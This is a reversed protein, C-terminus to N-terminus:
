SGWALLCRCLCCAPEAPDLQSKEQLSSISAAPVLPCRGWNVLIGLGGPGRGKGVKTRGRFAGYSIECEIGKFHRMLKVCNEGWGLILGMGRCAVLGQNAQAPQPPPSWGKVWRLPSWGLSLTQEADKSPRPTASKHARTKSEESPSPTENASGKTLSGLRFTQTDELREMLMVYPPSVQKLPAFPSVLWHDLNPLPSPFDRPIFGQHRFSIGPQCKWLLGINKWRGPARSLGIVHLSWHIAKCYNWVWLPNREGRM